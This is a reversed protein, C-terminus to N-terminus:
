VPPCPKRMVATKHARPLISQRKTWDGSAPFRVAKKGDVVTLVRGRGPIGCLWSGDAGVGGGSGGGRGVVV